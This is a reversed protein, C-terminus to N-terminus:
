VRVRLPLFINRCLFIIRHMFLNEEISTFGPATYDITVNKTGSTTLIVITLSHDGPDVSSHPIEVMLDGTVGTINYNNDKLINKNAYM